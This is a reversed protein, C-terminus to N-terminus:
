ATTKNLVKIIKESSTNRAGDAKKKAINSCKWIEAILTACVTENNGIPVIAFVVFSLDLYQTSIVYHYLQRLVNM